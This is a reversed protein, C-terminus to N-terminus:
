RYIHIHYSRKGHSARLWGRSKSLMRGTRMPGLSRSARSSLEERAGTRLAASRRCASCRRRMAESGFRLRSESSSGFIVMVVLLAPSGTMDIYYLDYTYIM